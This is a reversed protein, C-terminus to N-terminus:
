AQEMKEQIGLDEARMNHIAVGFGVEVKQGMQERPQAFTTAQVQLSMHLVKKPLIDHIM